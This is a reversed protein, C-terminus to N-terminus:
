PQVILELGRSAGLGQPACPSLFLAQADIGLGILFPNRPIPLPAVALGRRDTALPLAQFGVSSPDVLIQVGLVPLSARATGILLLGSGGPPAGEVAIAFGRAGFRPEQNPRLVFNCSPLASGYIAVGEDGDLVGDADRDIGMRRGTSPPVGTFVLDARRSQAFSALESRSFSGLAARSARYRLTARDFWLGLEAGDLVGKAILDCAGSSAQQELLALDAAVGSSSANSASVPVQWGVTPATGTDFALLFQELDDKRDAPWFTFAPQALFSALSDVAGDHTFGFGLKSPAGRQYGVKRYLNRLQPVKVQIETQAMLQSSIVVRNTGLPLAHCFACTQTGIPTGGIAFNVFTDFGAAANAHAPTTAYTRDRLQNPNPPYPLSLVFAKFDAFDTASLLAGGLLKEFAPQFGDLDIRDGRWHLPQAGRLGRLTQTTMPGKMPHFPQLFLNFPYSQGVPAPDFDGAPDGLDWALGDMDGDIHCAACSMTGNGALKADYLFGRGARWQPPMPDHPFAIEGLVRESATDIVALGGSLRLSVYLLPLSPHLALGRPGKKTRANSAAGPLGLEIRALIQGSTDLVGVRDTGQATVFLRRSSADFAIGTPEALSLAAGAPDPLQAYNVAPNLDFTARLGNRAIRAVQSDISHARLAPEFRVLNRAATGVVFVEGSAPDVALDYNTTGIAAESRTIALSRADIEFLDQDPLITNLVSSWQPDAARVILSQQPALPLAPNTPPPPPPASEDPLITTGNGSRSALVYVASRARDVALARPDKAPIPLSSLLTLSAADLIQVRDRTTSTVFAREPDGAFAVDAPEDEVSITALVTGRALSIVSISDSLWNVVWLENDSRFRVSVPELGVAFERWLVPRAPEALSYIAVRQDEAHVVALRTGDPSVAIPHTQPGEFPVFDDQARAALALSAATFLFPFLLACRM